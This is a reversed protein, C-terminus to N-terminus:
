RRPAPKATPKVAAQTAASAREGQDIDAKLVDNVIGLGLLTVMAAAIGMMWRRHAGRLQALEADPVTVQEAASPKMGLVKKTAQRYVSGADTVALGAKRAVQNAITAVPFTADAEAEDMHGLLVSTGDKLRMRAGRVLVPAFSNGYIERRTEVAAIMNYSVTKTSYFLTPIAGLHTPLTLRVTTEGIEVKSLLARVLNVLLLALIISLGFGFVALAVTDYWLGKAIRQYLMVPLSAVFPLLLLFGLSLATKAGGGVQYVAREAPDATVAASSSVKAPSTALPPTTASSTNVPATKASLPNALSTTDPMATDPSTTDPTATDPMTAERLEHRLRTPRLRSLADDYSQVSGFELLWDAGGLVTVL